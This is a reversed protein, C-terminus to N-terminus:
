CTGIEFKSVSASLIFSLSLTVSAAAVVDFMWCAWAVTISWEGWLPVCVFVWMEILTAFGMPITALFLSNTPDQIMVLWIEPYLTYRVISTISALLFLIINLVFFVISFYYLVSTDFPVSNMLVSVIGTGMTVAFWRYFLFADILQLFLSFFPLGGHGLSM